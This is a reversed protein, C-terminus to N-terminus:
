HILISAGWIPFVMLQFASPLHSIEKKPKVGVPYGSSQAQKKRQKRPFASSLSDVQAM